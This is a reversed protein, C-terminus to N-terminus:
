QGPRPPKLTPQLSYTGVAVVSAGISVVGDDPALNPISKIMMKAAKKFDIKCYRSQAKFVRISMETKKFIPFILCNFLKIILCNFMQVISCNFFKVTLCNLM